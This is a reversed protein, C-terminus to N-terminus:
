PVVGTTCISYTMHDPALGRLDPLAFTSTGNGGYTTGILAFLATNASISLLQGSAPLGVADPGGGSAATLLVEGLTCTAGGSASGAGNTGTGFQSVFADATPDSGSPGTPGVPGTPGFAGTAGVPGTQGAAGRAGAPGTADPPGVGGAAGASSAPGPAGSRGQPGAPVVDRPPRM